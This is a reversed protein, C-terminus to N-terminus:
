LHIERALDYALNKFAQFGNEHLTQVLRSGVIVGNAFKAVEKAQEM